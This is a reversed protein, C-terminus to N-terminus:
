PNGQNPRPKHKRAPFEGTLLRDTRGVMSAFEAFEEANLYFSFNYISVSIEGAGEYFTHGLDSTAVAMPEDDEIHSRVDETQRILLAVKEFEQRDLNFLFNYVAVSITGDEEQWTEGLECRSLEVIAM